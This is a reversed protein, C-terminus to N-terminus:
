GSGVTHLFHIWQGSYWFILLLADWDWYKCQIRVGRDWFVGKRKGFSEVLLQSECKFGWCKCYIGVWIKLFGSFGENQELFGLNTEM